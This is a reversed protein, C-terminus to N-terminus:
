PRESRLRLEGGDRVRSGGDRDAPIETEGGPQERSCRLLGGAAEM